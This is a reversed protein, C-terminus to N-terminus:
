SSASRSQRSCPRSHALFRELRAREVADLDAPRKRTPWLIHKLNDQQDDPLTARLRRIEQKRLMDVGERYHRAVHFRDIV